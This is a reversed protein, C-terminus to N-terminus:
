SYCTILTTWSVLHNLLLSCSVIDTESSPAIVTDARHMPGVDRSAVLKTDDNGAYMNLILMLADMMGRVADGVRANSLLESAEFYCETVQVASVASPTDDTMCTLLVGLLESAAGLLPHFSAIPLTCATKLLKM